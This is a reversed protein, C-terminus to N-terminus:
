EIIFISDVYTLKGSRRSNLTVKQGKKLAYRNVTRTKKSNLKLKYVKINIPMQYSYDDIVVLNAEHDLRDIVLLSEEKKESQSSAWTSFFLCAVVGCNFILKKM